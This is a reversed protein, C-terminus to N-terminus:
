QGEGKIKIIKTLTATILTKQRKTYVSQGWIIITPSEADIDESITFQDSYIHKLIIFNYRIIQM